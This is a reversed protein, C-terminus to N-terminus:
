NYIEVAKNITKRDRQSSQFMQLILYLSYIPNRMAKAMDKSIRKLTKLREDKIREQELIKFDSVMKNFADGLLRTENKSKIELHIDREGKGFRGFADTIVKIPETIRKALFYSLFFAIVVSLLGIYILTNRFSNIKRRADNLSYVIRICVNGPSIGKVPIGLDIVPENRYYTNRLIRDEGKLSLFKDREKNFEKLYEEEFKSSVIDDKGERLIEALKVERRSIINDTINQLQLVNDSLIGPVSLLSFMYLLSSANEKTESMVSNKYSNFLFYLLTSWIILIIICSSIFIQYHIKRFIKIKRM